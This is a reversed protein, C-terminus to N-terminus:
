LCSAGGTQEVVVEILDNDELELEEPTQQKGIKNGDFIFRIQNINLGMKKCYAEFVKEMRTVRKVRFKVKSGDSNQVQINLQDSQGPKIDPKVDDTM